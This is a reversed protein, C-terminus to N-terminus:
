EGLEDLEVEEQDAANVLVWDLSGHHRSHEPDCRLDAALHDGLTHLRSLLQTHEDIEPDVVLWGLAENGRVTTFWMPGYAAALAVAAHMAAFPTPFSARGTRM